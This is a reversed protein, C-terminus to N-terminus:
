ASSGFPCVPRWLCRGCRPSCPYCTFRARPTMSVLSRLRRQRQARYATRLLRCARLRPSPLPRLLPSVSGHEMAGVSQKSFQAVARPPSTAPLFYSAIRMAHTTACAKLLRKAQSRAGDAVCSCRNHCRARQGGRSNSTAGCNDADANPAWTLPEGSMCADLSPVRRGHWNKLAQCTAWKNM